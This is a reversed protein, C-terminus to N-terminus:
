AGVEAGEEILWLRTTKGVQVAEYVRGALRDLKARSRPNKNGYVGQCVASHSAGPHERLYERVDAERSDFDARVVADRARSLATKNSPAGWCSTIERGKADLIGLPVERLEFAFADPKPGYKNKTVKLTGAVIEIEFDLAATASGAGRARTTGLTPHHVLLVCTKYSNAFRKLRKIVEGMATNDNEDTGPTALAQTDFVVLAPELSRLQIDLALTGLSDDDALDLAEEPLIYL